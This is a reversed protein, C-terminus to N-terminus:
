LSPARFLDAADSQTQSTFKQPAFEPPPGCIPPQALPSTDITTEREFRTSSESNNVPPSVPRLPAQENLAKKVVYTWDRVVAAFLEAGMEPTAKSPEGTHGSQSTQPVAYSFVLNRTRDPDDFIRDHHVLDPAIHMTLATEATNAHVNEGDSRNIEQIRLSAEYLHKATMQAHPFDRRLEDLAMQLPATDDVNGHLVLVRHFGYAIVDELVERVVAALTQPSLSLTGPWFHTHRSACGFPMTPLVPVGTQSSVAHAIVEACLTDVNLPLHPGHQETSGIPFIVMDINETRMAAIQEWTLEAWLLPKNPTM